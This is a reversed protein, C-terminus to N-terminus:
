IQVEHHPCDIRVDAAGLPQELINCYSHGAGDSMSNKIHYRCTFCTRQMTLIGEQHFSHILRLLQELLLEQEIPATGALANGLQQTFTATEEALMRGKQTLHITYSRTDLPETEKTILEKDTLSRVADSITPKTMNFEQALYSVKRQIAPHHLLFILLQIQLPSLGHEKGAQWLLVRFAESIRELAVVIKSTTNISNYHPNFTTSTTM